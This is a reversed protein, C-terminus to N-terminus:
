LKEWDNIRDSIVLERDVNDLRTLSTKLLNTRYFDQIQKMYKFEEFITFNLNELNDSFTEKVGCAITRYRTDYGLRTFITVWTFLYLYNFIHM